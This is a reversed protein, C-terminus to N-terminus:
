KCPSNKIQQSIKYIAQELMVSDLEYKNYDIKSGNTILLDLETNKKNLSDILASCDIANFAPRESATQQNMKSAILVAVAGILAVVVPIIINKIRFKKNENKTDPQHSNTQGVNNQAVNSQSVNINIQNNGMTVATTRENGSQDHTAELSAASARRLAAQREQELMKQLREVERTANRIENPDEASLLKDKWENLHAEIKEIM